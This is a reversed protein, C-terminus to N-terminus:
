GPRELRSALLASQWPFLDLTLRGPLLGYLLWVFAVALLAGAAAGAGVAGPTAGSPAGGSLPASAVDPVQAEVIGGGPTSGHRVRARTHSVAHKSSNSVPGPDDLAAGAPEASAGSLTWAPGSARPAVAATSAGPGVQRTSSPAPPPLKRGGLAPANTSAARAPDPKPIAVGLPPALVQSWGGGLAFLADPGRPGSSSGSFVGATSAGFIDPLVPVLQTTGTPRTGGSGPPMPVSPLKLPPPAVATPASGGPPPAGQGVLGGLAQSAINILTGSLAALGQASTAALGQVSSTINAALQQASPSSAVSPTGGVLVPVAPLQPRSASSAPAASGTVLTTTAGASAPGAARPAPAAAAPGPDPPVRPSAGNSVGSSGSSTSPASGDGNGAPVAVARDPRVVNPGPSSPAPTSAAARAADPVTVAPAAPIAVRTQAIVKTAASQATRALALAQGGVSVASAVAPAASAAGPAASAVGPAVGGSVIVFLGGACLGCM